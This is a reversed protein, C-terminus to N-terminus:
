KKKTVKRQRPAKKAFGAKIAMRATAVPMDQIIGKKPTWSGHTPGVFARIVIVKM